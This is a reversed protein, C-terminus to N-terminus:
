QEDKGGDKILRIKKVFTGDEPGKIHDTVWTHGHVVYEGARNKGLGDVKRWHGRVSWRHSWVIERSGYESSAGRRKVHVIKKITFGGSTGTGLSIRKKVREEGVESRNLRKMFDEFILAMANNMDSIAVIETGGGSILALIKKDKPNTPNELSVICHIRAYILDNKHESTIPRDGFMEISTARFPQDYSYGDPLEDIDDFKDSPVENEPSFVFIEAESLEKIEKLGLKVFGGNVGGDIRHGGGDRKLTEVLKTFWRM